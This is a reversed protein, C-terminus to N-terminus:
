RPLPWRPSLRSQWHSALSEPTHPEGCNPCPSTTVGRGCRPCFQWRRDRANEYALRHSIICLALLMFLAPAGLFLIDQLTRPSRWHLFRALILFLLAALCTLTLYSSARFLKFLPTSPLM